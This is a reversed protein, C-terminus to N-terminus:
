TWPEDATPGYISPLRGDAMRLYVSFQGRHHIQDHMLFEIFALKPVDGITKPAVFFKTTGALQADSCTRMLEILEGRSQEFAAIVEALKAPAQPLGGSLDLTDRIAATALVQEVTFLWALERATKLKAHPRLESQERPYARLVKLTTATEREILELLRERTARIDNALEQHSSM